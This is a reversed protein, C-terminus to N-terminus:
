YGDGSIRSIREMDGDDGIEGLPVVYFAYVPTKKRVRELAFIDLIKVGGKDRGARMIMRVM